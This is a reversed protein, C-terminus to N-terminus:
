ASHSKGLSLFIGAVETQYCQIRSLKRRGIVGSKPETDRFDQLSLMKFM